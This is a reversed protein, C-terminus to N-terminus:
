GFITIAATKYFGFTAKVTLPLIIPGNLSLLPLLVRATVDYNMSEVFVQLNSVTAGDDTFRYVRGTATSAFYIKGDPGIEV